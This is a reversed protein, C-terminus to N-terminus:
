RRKTKVEFGIKRKTSKDYCVFDLEYVTQGTKYLMTQLNPHKHRLELFVYNETLLGEKASDPVALATMLCNLLGCDLLYYRCFTIEGALNGTTNVPVPLIIGSWKLWNLTYSTMNRTIHTYKDSNVPMSDSFKYEKLRSGQKENLLNIILNNITDPIISANEKSIYATCERLFTNWLNSLTQMIEEHTINKSLYMSVVYPYGGYRRYLSYLHEASTGNPCNRLVESFSMPQMEVLYLNGASWFTEKTNLSGLYSGTIIICCKCAALLDRLKNFVNKVDAQVEDLVIVTSSDPTFTIGRKRALIEINVGIEQM